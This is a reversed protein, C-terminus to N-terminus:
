TSKEMITQDIIRFKRRVLLVEKFFYILLHAKLSLQRDKVAQALYSTAGKFIEGQIYEFLVILITVYIMFILIKLDM